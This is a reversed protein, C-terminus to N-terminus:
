LPRISQPQPLLMGASRAIGTFGSIFQLRKDREAVYESQVWLDRWDEIVLV